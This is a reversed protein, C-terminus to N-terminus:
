RFRLARSFLIRWRGALLAAWFYPRWSLLKRILRPMERRQEFSGPVGRFACWVGDLCADACASHGRSRCVAAEEIAAAICALERSSRAIFGRLHRRWFWFENRVMLYYYYPPRTLGEAVPLTKGHYISASPVVHTRFGHEAFRVSLDFDEWYAFLREDLLGVQKLAESRLLWAAGVLVQCESVEPRNAETASKACRLIGRTLDVFGGAFQVREPIDQYYSLPAVAAIRCDQEAEAVLANLTGAPVTTDDNLLWVYDAGSCLAYEIGRNAGGAYGENERNLILHVDSHLRQIESVSNDKSNNDVVVVKFHRYSICRLNSLCELVTSCRNWSLVIVYVLPASRVRQATVQDRLANMKGNSGILALASACAV